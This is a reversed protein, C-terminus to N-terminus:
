PSVHILPRVAIRSGYHLRVLYFGAPVSRDADDRGDWEMRNAGAAQTGDSLVRLVRGALDVVDLRAQGSSPLNWEISVRGSSPNPYPASLLPQGPLSIPPEAHTASVLPQLDLSEQRDFFALRNPIASEITQRLENSIRNARHRVAIWTLFSEAIDERDPYDRAYVSIFEPDAQQAARWEPHTAWQADLSTHSAEHVLTEELIGDDIYLEAQGTHILINRNGGGFPQLGEHVWMTEVNTRLSRPLRGVETAWRVAQMMAADPTGFEPNVQVEVVSGDGFSADVLFANRQVWNNFRRDYMTRQGQGRYTAEVFETPDDSTIIDPDIFITGWFPPDLPRPTAGLLLVGLLAAITRPRPFSM